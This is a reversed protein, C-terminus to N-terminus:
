RLLISSKGVGSDGQFSSLLCKWVSEITKCVVLLLKFLYDGEIEPQQGADAMAVHRFVVAFSSKKCTQNLSTKHAQGLCLKAASMRQLSWVLRAVISSM